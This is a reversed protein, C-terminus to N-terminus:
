DVHGDAPVREAALDVGELAVDGQRADVAGQCADAARQCADVPPQPSGNRATKMLAGHTSCVPGPTPMRPVSCPVPLITATRCPCNSAVAKWGSSVWSRRM